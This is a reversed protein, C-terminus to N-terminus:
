KMGRGAAVKKNAPKMGRPSPPRNNVSQGPDPGSPAMGMKQAGLQNLVAILGRGVHEAAAKNLVAEGPALRAPVTDVKGSGKGPVKAMGKDATVPSGMPNSVQAVPPPAMMTPPLMGIGGGMPMAAFGKSGKSPVKATGKKYGPLVERGPNGGIVNNDLVSKTSGASTGIGGNNFLSGGNNFVGPSGFRGMLGARLQTAGEVGMPSNLLDEGTAQAGILHARAALEPLGGYSTAISAQALPQYTAGQARTAYAQASRLAAESQTQLPIASAQAGELRSRSTAEQQLIDYKRNLADQFGAPAGVM